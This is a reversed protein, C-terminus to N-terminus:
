YHSNKQKCKFALDEIDNIAGTENNLHIVSVLVTNEDVLSILDDEDVKGNPQIKAIKVEKGEKILKKAFEYVASHEGASIIINGRKSFSNLVMNDAETGCSTFVTEYGSGFYSAIQERIKNLDATIKVGQRYLASPNFYNNLYYDKAFDVAGEDVVGTSANDLYIM